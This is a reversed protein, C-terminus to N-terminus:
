MKKKKKKPVSTSPQSISIDNDVQDEVQECNEDDQQVSQVNGSTRYFLVTCVYLL